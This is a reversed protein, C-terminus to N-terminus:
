RRRYGGGGGGSQRCLYIIFGFQAFVIAGLVIAVISGVSLSVQKETAEAVRRVLGAPLTVAVAM